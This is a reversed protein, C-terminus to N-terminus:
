YRTQKRPPSQGPGGPRQPSFYTDITNRGDGPTTDKAKGKGKVPSTPPKKEKTKLNAVIAGYSGTPLSGSPGPATTPATPAARTPPPLITRSPGAENDQKLVIPARLTHTTATTTSYVISRPPLTNTTPPPPRPGSSPCEGLLHHKRCPKCWPEPCYAGLHLPLDTRGRCHRCWLDRDAYHGKYWQGGYMFWNPLNSLDVWSMTKGTNISDHQLSVVGVMVGTPHIDASLDAPQTGISWLHSLHHNACAHEYANAYSDTTQGPPLHVKIARSRLPLAPGWSKATVAINKWYVRFGIRKALRYDEIDTWVVDVVKNRGTTPHINVMIACKFGKKRGHRETDETLKAHHNPNEPDFNRGTIVYIASNSPVSPTNKDVLTRIEAFTLPIKPDDRLCTGVVLRKSSAAESGASSFSTDAAAMEESLSSDGDMSADPNDQEELAPAQSPSRSTNHNPATELPADEEYEALDEYESIDVEATQAPPNPLAPPSGTKGAQNQEHRLMDTDVSHPDDFLARVEELIAPGQSGIPQTNADPIYEDDSVQSDNLHSSPTTSDSTASEQSEPLVIASAPTSGLTPISKRQRLAPHVNSM